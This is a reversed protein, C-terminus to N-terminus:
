ALVRRMSYGVMEFGFHEYLKRTRDSYLGNSNGGFIEKAKVIRAWSLLETLLLAAARTGRKEPVVYISEALVNVGRTFGYGNITALLFGIVDQKDEVVFLTPHATDVARQVTAKVTDADFEHHPAETAARQWCMSVIAASDRPEVLRCIM